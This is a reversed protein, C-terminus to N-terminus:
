SSQGKRAQPAALTAAFYKLLHNVAQIADRNGSDLLADLMAHQAQRGADLIAPAPQVVPPAPKPFPHVVTRIQWDESSLELAIDAYGYKAALTKLEQVTEPPVLMGKEYNGVSQHSKGILRAFDSQNLGLLRRLRRVPNDENM